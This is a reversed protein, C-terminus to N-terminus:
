WEGVVFVARMVIGDPASPIYRTSNEPQHGAFAVPIRPMNRCAFVLAPTTISVAPEPGTPPEDAIAM